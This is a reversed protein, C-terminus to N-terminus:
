PQIFLAIMMPVYIIALVTSLLVASAVKEPVIGLLSAIVVTNAAMPVISLLLLAHHINEGYFGFVYSDLLALLLALAPWAIFKAGYTVALFRGDLVLRQMGAIGLGVIMMGLVIYTGRISQEFDSFVAPIPLDLARWLLGLLFAYVTPLRLTKRVAERVGAKGRAAIFYGVSSECLTVGLIMLIYIAVTKEDFLVLAIPLGFYGTNGTGATCGVINATGDSWFRRALRFFAVDMLAAMLFTILPLALTAPTLEARLVGGFMIVPILLYFVIAAIPERPVALKRGAVVGMGVTAYLPLLKAVILWFVSM